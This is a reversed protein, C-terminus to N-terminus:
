YSDTAVSGYNSEGYNKKLDINLRNYDDDGTDYERGAGGKQRMVLVASIAFTVCFTMMAGFANSRAQEVDDIGTIFEPQITLMIYVYTMFLIGTLSYFGCCHSSIM